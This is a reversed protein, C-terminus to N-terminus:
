KVPEILGYDGDKRRYIVNIDGTQQNTFVYFDKDILDMQMAAEEPPMPKMDFSKRKIINGPEGVPKTLESLNADKTTGKRKSELKEKHKKIQRDLKEIVDDISSYMEATISEAQILMGNSRILVEAKHSLKEVSLTVSAESDSTLIREFKKIKSHAYDRIATTVEINRGYVTINM